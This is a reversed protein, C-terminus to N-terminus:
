LKSKLKLSICRATNRLYFLIFLLLYIIFLCYYVFLLLCVIIFLM